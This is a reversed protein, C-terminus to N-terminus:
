DKRLDKLKVEMYGSKKAANLVAFEPYEKVIWRASKEVREKTREEQM